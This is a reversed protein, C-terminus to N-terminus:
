YKTKKTGIIEAERAKGQTTTQTGVSSSLTESGPLSLSFFFEKAYSSINFISEIFKHRRARTSENNESKGLQLEASPPPRSLQSLFLSLGFDTM